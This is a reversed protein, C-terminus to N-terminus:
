GWRKKMGIKGIRSFYDKSRNLSKMSKRIKEKVKLSHKKGYFPNREGIKSNRIKERTKQTHNKGLMGLRNRGKQFEISTKDYIIHCIRCLMHFNKREKEYVFGRILSWDFLKSTSQCNSSECKSAKGYTKKLWKHVAVYNSKEM